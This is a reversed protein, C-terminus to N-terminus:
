GKGGAAILADIQAALVSIPVAGTKVVTDNFGRIDFKAGLAQKAHDRLRNIENHGVKYGCAQGPTGCYRDIESTMAQRTRGSNAVAWDIAQERTWRKAHLGTDVVLRIARFRQAQLYGLQGAWNTEYMGMEDGLQEAYLAWGEVYANFGSLLIRILPLQGTETLYAGQWAHGPVTEHYTLTPLSFKPWNKTSKLNIYYTSPRSGDLSGTNMYGQGAGDQIDAPVRKVDVPAKLKLNFQSALKPRVDIIVQNLYAIIQDRGADTDPFLFRPDNGLAIMREGVTGQSLGNAKLIADMRAEIAKNQELGTQHVQEATMDTNTGAKLLWSYYAEGDKFRWVGADHGSQPQLGKLAEYQRTLAPYIEGSVIKTAQGSWDGAIGKAKARGALSSVFRSDAASVALMGSMQGLMNAMIFDPAIVGQAADAKVRATEQDLAVAVAHMRALYADCDAATEISHQSDLFEGADSYTGGQQSVVYPTSSESMASQFNNEGFKFPRAELGLEMAYAVVDKNLKVAPSLGADPLAKLSALGDECFKHKAEVGAWSADSLKSKRWALAGKDLGLSSAFEPADDLMQVCTKDFFANAAADGTAALALGPAATALGAAAASLLLQRRDLSM